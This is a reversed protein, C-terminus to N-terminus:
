ATSKSAAILEAFTDEIELTDPTTSKCHNLSIRISGEPTDITEQGASLMDWLAEPMEKDFYVLSYRGKTSKIYTTHTVQCGSLRAIREAAVTPCVFVDPLYHVFVSTLVLPVAM